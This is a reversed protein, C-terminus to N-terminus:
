SGLMSVDSSLDDWARVNSCVAENTASYGEAYGELSPMARTTAAATATTGTTGTTTTSSAALKKYCSLETTHGSAQRVEGRGFGVTTVAGGSPVTFGVPTEGDNMYVECGLSRGILSQCPVSCSQDTGYGFGPSEQEAESRASCAALTLPGDKFSDYVM